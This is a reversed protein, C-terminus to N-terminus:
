KLLTMKKTLRFNEGTSESNATISYFYIGSSLNSANFSVVHSGSSLDGNFLENVLQGILNYVSINVYSHVPLTFRINTTPNFPNPYNQELSFDSIIIEDNEVDTITNATGKTITNTLYWASAGDPFRSYSQTVDMAAFSVYDIVNGSLDEFWVQEGGSSLGFGSELTDDTVIVLFGNAPIVSGAPFEKKPKTGNFGGSDYIKYGTIDISSSTSNYIEIWDPDGATGRSYIENMVITSATSYVNSAGKTITTTKLWNEGDPIRSFSETTQLAPIVVSDVLNGGADELWVLEGGSSIGFGSAATDDTVIVLFGNAPIVSGSPFEKKPKTGSQGGNDYIKYGTINIEVNTTNYIEIWDPDSTTGRSYVENMFAYNILPTYNATGRTRPTLIQWNSSGDPIRGYSAATDAIAVLDVTDIVTGSANEFWVKEGGSSLGFGSPDTDDTIIVLFGNAPIVSGAPFEKKPKTGNFGGSDYIKFGTIDISSSTPNYIEIWDLEAVTGRSFLENMLPSQAHVGSLLFFSFIFIFLLLKNKM